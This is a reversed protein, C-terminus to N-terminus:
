HKPSAVKKITGTLIENKNNPEYRTSNLSKYNPNKRFDM